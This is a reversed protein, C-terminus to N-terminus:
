LGSRELEEAWRAGAESGNGRLRPCESGYAQTHHFDLVRLSEPELTSIWLLRPRTSRGRREPPPSCSRSRNKVGCEADQLSEGKRHGAVEHFVNDDNVQSKQLEDNPQRARAESYSQDEAEGKKNKGGFSTASAATVRTKEAVVALAKAKLKATGKLKKKAMELSDDTSTERLRRISPARLTPSLVSPSPLSSPFFPSSSPAASLNASAPAQRADSTSRSPSPAFTSPSPSPSLSPPKQVICPSPLPSASARNLLDTFTPRRIPNPRPDLLSM